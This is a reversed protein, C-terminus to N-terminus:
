GWPDGSLQLPMSEGRGEATSKDLPRAWKMVDRGCQPHAPPCGWWRASDWCCCYDPRWCGTPCTHPNKKIVLPSFQIKNEKDNKTHKLLLFVVLFSRNIMKEDFWSGIEATWEHIKLNCSLHTNTNSCLNNVGSKYNRGKQLYSFLKDVTIHQCCDPPLHRQTGGQWM